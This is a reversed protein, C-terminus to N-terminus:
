GALVQLVAKEAPSLPKPADGTMRKALTDQFMKFNRMRAVRNRNRDAEEQARM